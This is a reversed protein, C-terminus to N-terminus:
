GIVFVKQRAGEEKYVKTARTRTCASQEHNLEWIDDGDVNDEDWEGHELKVEEEFRDERCYKRSIAIAIHRWASINVKVGMWRESSEQM